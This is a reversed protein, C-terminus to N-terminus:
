NTVTWSFDADNCVAYLMMVYGYTPMTEIDTQTEHQWLAQIDYADAELCVEHNAFMDTKGNVDQLYHVMEHLLAAGNIDNHDALFIEKTEVDYFASVVPLDRGEHEAKMLTEPAYALLQLKASSVITVEPLVEGNYVLTSADTIYAIAANMAATAEDDAGIVVFPSDLLQPASPADVLIFGDGSAEVVSVDIQPVLPGDIPKIAPLQFTEYSTGFEASPVFEVALPTIGPLQFTDYSTGVLEVAKPTAPAQFTDYSTGVLTVGTAPAQFTEYSTGVLEVASAASAFVVAATLTAFILKM